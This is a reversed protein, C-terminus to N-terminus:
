SILRSYKVASTSRSTLTATGPLAAAPDRSLPNPSAGRKEEVSRPSPMRSSTSSSTPILPVSKKSPLVESVISQARAAPCQMPSCPYSWSSMVESSSAERLSTMSREWEATDSLTPRGDQKRAGYMDASPRTSEAIHSEVPM